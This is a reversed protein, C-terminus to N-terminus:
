GVMGDSQFRLCGRKEFMGDTQIYRCVGRGVIGDSQIHQCGRRGVMGDTETHQLPHFVVAVRNYRRYGQTASSLLSGQTVICAFISGGQPNYKREAAILRCKDAYIM